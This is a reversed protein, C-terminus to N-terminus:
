SVRWLEITLQWNQLSFTASSVFNIAQWRVTVTHTGAALTGSTRDIAHMELGCQGPTPCVTSNDDGGSDWFCNVGCVPNMEAGDVLIRLLCLNRPDDGFCNSTGSFRAVIRYTGTRPTAISTSTLTVEFSSPPSTISNAVGTVTKVRKAGQNATFTGADLRDPFGSGALLWTLFFVVRSLSRM